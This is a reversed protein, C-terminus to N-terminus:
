KRIRPFPVPCNTLTKLCNRSKPMYKRTIKKWPWPIAGKKAVIDRAIAKQCGMTDITVICGSIDLAGLLVPIATIENSKEETQVQRLVLGLEDAWIIV